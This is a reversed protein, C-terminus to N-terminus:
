VDDREVRKQNRVALEEYQLLTCAYKVYMCSLMKGVTLQSSVRNFVSFHLIHILYYEYSRSLTTQCRILTNERGLTTQM